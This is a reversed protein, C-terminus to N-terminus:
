HGSPPTAQGLLPCGYVRTSAVAPTEGAVIQELARRGSNAGVHGRSATMGGRFLLRGASDYLYTQGSTAAGFRRSEEGLADVFLKTGPIASAQSWLESKEWGAAVAPPRVFVVLTHPRDGVHALLTNLEELSARSCPCRPHVFMVLTPREPSLALKTGSPWSPSAANQVGPTGSYTWLYGMGFGVLSIWVVLAGSLRHSPKSAAAVESPCDVSVSRDLVNRGDDKTTFPISEM